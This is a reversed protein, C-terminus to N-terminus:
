VTRPKFVCEGTELSWVEWHYQILGTRDIQTRWHEHSRVSQKAFFLTRFKTASEMLFRGNEQVSVVRYKIRFM